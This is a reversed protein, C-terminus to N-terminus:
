VKCLSSARYIEIGYFIFETGNTGKIYNEGIDYRSELWPNSLIAAKLEAFFSNKISVQFERVCLVKLRQIAGQLVVARAM